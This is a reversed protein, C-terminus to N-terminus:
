LTMLVLEHSNLERYLADLQERSTATFTATISLYKNGSSLKSSFSVLEVPVHKNVIDTVALSFADTNLGMVKIPFICPFQITLNNRNMTSEYYMLQM